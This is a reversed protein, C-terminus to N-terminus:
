WLGVGLHHHLEDTIVPHDGFMLNGERVSAVHVHVNGADVPQADLEVVVLGGSAVSGIIDVSDQRVWGQAALGLSRSGCQLRPGCLAVTGRCHRAEEVRPLEAEKKQRDTPFGRDEDNSEDIVFVPPESM